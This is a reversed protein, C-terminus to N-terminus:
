SPLLILKRKSTSQVLHVDMFSYLLHFIPNVLFSKAFTAELYIIFILGIAIFLTVQHFLHNDNSPCKHM